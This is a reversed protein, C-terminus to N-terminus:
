RYIEEHSGIDILVIKKKEIIFDLLIRYQMDISLSYLEKKGGKLKHLRLSPHFPNVQIIRIIKIYKTKLEPHKKFFRLARKEYHESFVIEYM